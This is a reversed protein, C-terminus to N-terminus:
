NVTREVIVRRTRGELSARLRHRPFFLGGARMGLFSSFSIRHHDDANM